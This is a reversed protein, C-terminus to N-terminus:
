GLAVFDWTQFFYIGTLAYNLIEKQGTRYRGNIQFLSLSAGLVCVTFHSLKSWRTTQSDQAAFSSVM